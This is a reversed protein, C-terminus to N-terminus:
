FEAKKIESAGLSKYLAEVKSESYGQEDHPIFIAFKHCTLDPDIIPPNVKPLGIAYFLAGVSCLAALLITLEFMIPIFAPLSLFPKGGINLPWSVASTWWTLLFGSSLGVLGMTFTVYPIWSRKIGCAEEMGHVPYPTIAEFKKYGAEKVKQAANLIESETLFIAALGTKYKAM